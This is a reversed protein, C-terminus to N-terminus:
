ADFIPAIFRTEPKARLKECMQRVAVRVIASPSIGEQRAKQCILDWNEKEEIYVVRRRNDAIKNPM